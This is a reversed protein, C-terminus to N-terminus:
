QEDEWVLVEARQGLERQNGVQRWASPTIQVNRVWVDRYFDFGARGSEEIGEALEVHGDDREGFDAPDGCLLADFNEEVNNEM